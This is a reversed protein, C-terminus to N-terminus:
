LENLALWPLVDQMRELTAFSKGALQEPAVREHAWTIAFPIHIARAGIHVVPLVDSKLSNGIMLFDAPQCNYKSLIRRYSQEDKESVIEIHTFFDGLGSRAIKSEQDFLDGKTLVMLEYRKALTELVDHVGELVDIPYALLERGVDIIQQVESGTVAGNTLEIATEIMSLTFSKAGYGFLRLNRIQTDYFRSTLTDQDVHHALLGALKQQVNVYTPENAWLTDDADFAILKM